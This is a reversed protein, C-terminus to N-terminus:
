SGKLLNLSRVFTILQWITKGDFPYAAMATGSVGTQITRFLEADSNGHKFHGTTLSPGNSGGGGELGHCFACTSRYMRMGAARDEPTSYPKDTISGHDQAGLQALAVLLLPFRHLKM